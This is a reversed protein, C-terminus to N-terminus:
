EFRFILNLLVLVRYDPLGGGGVVVRCWVKLLRESGLGEHGRGPNQCM